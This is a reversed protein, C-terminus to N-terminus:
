AALLILAAILGPIAAVILLVGLVRLRRESTGSPRARHIGIALAVGFAIAASAGGTILAASAM